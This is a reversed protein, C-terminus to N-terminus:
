SIAGKGDRPYITVVLSANVSAIERLLKPTFQWTNHSWSSGVVHNFPTGEVHDFGINFQRSLCANWIRQGDVSLSRVANIIHKIAQSPHRHALDAEYTATLVGNRTRYSLQLLGM